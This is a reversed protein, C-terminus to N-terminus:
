QSGFDRHSKLVQEAEIQRFLDHLSDAYIQERKGELPHFPYAFILFLEVWNNLTAQRQYSQLLKGGKDYLNASITYEWSYPMPIITLSLLSITGSLAQQKFSSEEFFRVELTYDHSNRLIELEQRRKPSNVDNPDETFTDYQSINSIENLADRFINDFDKVGNSQLKPITDFGHQQAVHQFLFFVSVKEAGLNKKAPLNYSGSIESNSAACGFLAAALLLCLLLIIRRTGSRLCVFRNTFQTRLM